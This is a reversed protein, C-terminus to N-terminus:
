VNRDEKGIREGDGVLQRYEQDLKDGGMVESVSREAEKRVLQFQDQAERLRRMKEAEQNAQQRILDSAHKLLEEATATVNDERLNLVALELQRVSQYHQAARIELTGIISKKNELDKKANILELKVAHSHLMEGDVSQGYEPLTQNGALEKKARDLLRRYRLDEQALREEEKRIQLRLESADMAIRIMAEYYEIKRQFLKPARERERSYVSYKMMELIKEVIRQEPERQGALTKLRGACFEISSSNSTGDSWPRLLERRIGCLDARIKEAKREETEPVLKEIEIQELRTVSPSIDLSPDQEEECLPYQGAIREKLSGEMGLESRLCDITEDLIKWCKKGSLQNGLEAMSRWQNKWLIGKYKHSFPESHYWAYIFDTYDELRGPDGSWGEFFLGYMLMRRIDKERMQNWVHYRGLLELKLEEYLLFRQPRALLRMMEPCVETNFIGERDLLYKMSADAKLPATIVFISRQRQERLARNLRQRSSETQFLEAFVRIPIVIAYCDNEEGFLRLIRDMMEEKNKHRIRYQRNEREVKVPFGFSKKINKAYQAASQADETKVRCGGRLDQVFFVGQYQDRKLIYYLKRSLDLRVLSGLYYHDENAFLLHLYGDKSDFM